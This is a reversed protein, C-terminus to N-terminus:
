GGMGVRYRMSYEAFSEHVEWVSHDPGVVQLPWLVRPVPVQTGDCRSVSMQQAFAKPAFEGNGFRAQPCQFDAGVSDRPACRVCFSSWCRPLMTACRRHM